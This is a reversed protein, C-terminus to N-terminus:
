RNDPLKIKYNGKVSKVCDLSEIEAILNVGVVKSGTSVKTVVPTVASITTLCDELDYSDKIQIVHTTALESAFVLRGVLTLLCMFILRM